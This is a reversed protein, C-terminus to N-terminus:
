SYWEGDGEQMIIKNEFGREGPLKCFGAAYTVSYYKHVFMFEGSDSLTESFCLFFNSQEQSDGQFGDATVFLSPSRGGAM